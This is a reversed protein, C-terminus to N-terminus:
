LKNIREKIKDSVLKMDAKGKLLPTAERMILGMDKPNTPNIKKFLGDIISDIEKESLQKPLYEKLIEIEKQTQDILDQRNGKKFENISDNRMKIQKSVTDILLEENEEKKNNIHELQMAGKVMRLVTTKDKDKEKMSTVLDQKMKEYLDMKDGVNIIINFV